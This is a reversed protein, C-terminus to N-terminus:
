NGLFHALPKAEARCEAVCEEAGRAIQERGEAIVTEFLKRIGRAGDKDFAAAMEPAMAEIRALYKEIRHLWRRRAQMVTKQDCYLPSTM